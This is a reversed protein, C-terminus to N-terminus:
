DGGCPAAALAPGLQPLRAVPGPADVMPSADGASRGVTDVPGPPAVGRLGPLGDAAVQRALDDLRQLMYRTLAREFDLGDIHAAVGATRLEELDRYLTSKTLLNRALIGDFGFLALLRLTGLLQRARPAGCAALLTEYAELETM